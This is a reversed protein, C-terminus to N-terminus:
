GETKRLQAMLDQLKRIEATLQQAIDATTSALDINQHTIQDVTQLTDTMRNVGSTQKKSAGAIHQILTSVEAVYGAISNLAEATQDVAAVGGDIQQNSKVILEETEKAAKASRAALNRVEEAVVAFGKGHQGARAAEVAANLALLNTQFAIDDITKIVTRMNRANDRIQNMSAIMEEMRGRCLTTAHGAEGSLRNAQEAGDANQHSQENAAKMDTTMSEVSEAQRTAGQSLDSSAKAISETQEATSQIVAEVQEVMQFINERDSVDKFIEIMGSKKNHVDLIFDSTVDWSAGNFAVQSLTKGQSLLLRLGSTAYDNGTVPKWIDDVGKGVCQDLSKHLLNLGAKNVFTIKSNMDVVSISDTSADLIQRYWFAEAKISRNVWAAFYSGFAISVILVILGITFSQWLSNSELTKSHQVANHIQSDLQEVFEKNQIGIGAVMDDMGQKARNRNEMVKDVPAAVAIIWQAPHDGFQVPIHVILMETGERGPLTTCTYIETQEEEMRKAMEALEPVDVINRYVQEMEDDDNKVMEYNIKENPYYVVSGEPSFFMAFGTEFPKQKEVIDQLRQLVIDLGAVGLVNDEQMIPVCFSTIPVGDEVYPETIFEQKTDRTEVYYRADSTLYDDLFARVVRENGDKDAIKYFWPLFAGESVYDPNSFIMEADPNEKGVFEADKGDFADKEWACFVARIDDHSGLFAVFHHEVWERSPTEGLAEAETKVFLLTEAIMQVLAFPADMVAKIEQAIGNGVNRLQEFAAQETIGDINAGVDSAQLNLNGVMTENQEKVSNLVSHLADLNAQSVSLMDRTLLTAMVLVILVALTVIGLLLLRDIRM